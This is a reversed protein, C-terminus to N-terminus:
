SRYVSVTSTQKALAKIAVRLKTGDQEGIYM